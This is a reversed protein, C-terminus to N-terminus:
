LLMPCPLYFLSSSLSLSHLSYSSDLLLLFHRICSILVSLYAIDPLPIPSQKGPLESTPAQDDAYYDYGAFDDATAAPDIPSYPPFFCYIYLLCICVYICPM